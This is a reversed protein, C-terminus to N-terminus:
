WSCKHKILFNIVVVLQKLFISKIRNVFLLYWKKNILLVVLAMISPTVKM